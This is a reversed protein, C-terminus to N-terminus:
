NNTNKNDKYADPNIQRGIEPTYVKKVKGDKDIKKYYAKGKPSLYIPYITGKSDKYVYNTKTEVSEKTASKAVFTNGERVVNQGYALNTNITVGGYLFMVILMVIVKIKTKM